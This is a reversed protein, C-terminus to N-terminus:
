RSEGRKKGVKPALWDGFDPVWEFRLVADVGRLGTEVEIQGLSAVLDCFTAILGNSEDSTLGRDLLFRIQMSSKNSVFAKAVAGFDLRLYDLGHWGDARGRPGLAEPSRSASHQKGRTVSKAPRSTPKKGSTVSKAPRSTPQRGSTVSKAPRSTPQKGARTSKSPRSTAEIRAGPLPARSPQAKVLDMCLQRSSGIAFHHENRALTAEVDAEAPPPRDGRPAQMTSTMVRLDGYRRSQLRFPLKLRRSRDTNVIVGFIQMATSLSQPFRRGGFEGVIAGRPLRLRDVAKSASPQILVGAIGPRWGSLVDEVLDGGRFIMEIGALFQQVDRLGKGRVFAKHEKLFPAFGRQLRFRLIEDDRQAPLAIPEADLGLVKRTADSLLAEVGPFQLEFDAGREDFDLTACLHSARALAVGIGPNVLGGGFDPSKQRLANRVSRAMTSQMDFWLAVPKSRPLERLIRAARPGADAGSQLEELRAALQERRKADPSWFLFRGERLIPLRLARQLPKACRRALDDSELRAIAFPRARPGALGFAVEAALVECVAMAIPNRDLGRTLALGARVRQLGRPDLIPGLKKVDEFAREALRHLRPLDLELGRIRLWAGCDRPAFAALRRLTAKRGAKAPSAQEGGRPDALRVQESAGARTQGLTAGPTLATALGVFAALRRM